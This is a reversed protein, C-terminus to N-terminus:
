DGDLSKLSLDRGPRLVKEYADYQRAVHMGAKEYLRTAGTLSDADVGLGVRQRGRRHFEGFAHHLLALALGQRRWPRRVGLTNVWGMNPDEYWIPRCLCVAAIEDGDLALFWASPDHEEDNEVWHQFRAFSTEEPQDVHGWHDQFAERTARFIPLLEPREQRTSLTIGEPWAPAPPAEDLEVVMRWFHRVLALGQKELLRTTPKHTSLSVSRLTVLADDPVRAIAERAREEGWAMLATGLGQGEYDPHVRGWLFPTVPIAATDELDAYAIIEGAASKIVRTGSDMEFGPSQWFTQLENATFEPQGTQAIACENLLTVIAELDAPSAPRMLFGEQLTTATKLEALM